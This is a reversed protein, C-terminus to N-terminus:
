RLIAAGFAAITLVLAVTGTIRPIDRAVLAALIAGAGLTALPFLLRLATM